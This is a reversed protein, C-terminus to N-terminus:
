KDSRGQSIRQLFAQGKNKRFKEYPDNDATKVGVGRYMEDKERVEGGKIPDKIGQESVGLGSNGSWGMKMLMQHGKNSEDLRSEVKTFSGFSPPTISRSRSRRYSRVPSRSKSKSRSRSNRRRSSEPSKRSKSKRPSKEEKYERYRRKPSPSRHRSHFSQTQSNNQGSKSNDNNTASKANEKHKNNVEEPPKNDNPDEKLKKTQSKAKFFEYLGLQEWGDSNRPREHTPPAYFAEVAQLLRENPPAPPPLRIEKPVIAKYEFDELKVLPAMLGAPLEYYPVEPIVEKPPIPVSNPVNNFFQPNPIQTGASPYPPTTFAQNGTILQQQTVPPGIGLHIQPPTQHLPLQPMLLRQSSPNNNSPQVGAPPQQQHGLPLFINPMSTPPTSPDFQTLLPPRPQQQDFQGILHPRSQPPPDFPALLPPRPSQDFQGMPLRSGLQPQNPPIFRNLSPHGSVPCQANVPMPLSTVPMQPMNPLIQQNQQQLQQIKSQMHSVFESHQKQLQSFKALQGNTVNTVQGSFENLLASKYNALAMSPNQLQDLATSEFYQNMQWLKLLKNLKQHKEEDADSFTQCFIPVIVKELCRKLSDDGKRQCHSLLDNILYLIHLRSEFTSGITMVRHLLHRAIVDYHVPASCNNFIWAKGKTIAEKTCNDAIPLLVNEFENLNVNFDDALRRLQEEQLQKLVNNIIIDKEQMIVQHQASLNGESQRIQEKLENIQQTLHDLNNTMNNIGNNQWLNSQQQSQQPTQTPAIPTSGQQPPGVSLSILQQGSAMMLQKHHIQREQSVQFQYYGFFEGGFLFHFRPNDRQKDKTMLEFEPGNRAVFQALKDIINRQEEDDPAKVSYNM